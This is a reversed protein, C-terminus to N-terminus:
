KVLKLLAIDSINKGINVNAFNLDNSLKDIKHTMEMHRQANLPDLQTVTNDIKNLKAEIITQGEQLSAADTKLVSIDGKMSSIDNKMNNVDEHVVKLLELIKDEMSDGRSNNYV